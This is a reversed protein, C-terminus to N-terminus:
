LRMSGSQPGLTISFRADSLDNDGLAFKAIAKSDSGLDQYDSLQKETMIACLESLDGSLMVSYDDIVSIVCYGM